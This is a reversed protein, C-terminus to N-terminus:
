EKPEKAKRIKDAVWASRNGTLRSLKAWLEPPLSISRTVVKRGEGSGAKRGAGKRAGGRKPPDSRM